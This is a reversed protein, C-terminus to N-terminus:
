MLKPMICYNLGDRAKPNRKFYYLPLQSKNDFPFSMKWCEVNCCHTNKLSKMGGRRFNLVIQPFMQSGQSPTGGPAGMGAAALLAGWPSPVHCFTGVLWSPIDAGRVTTCGGPSLSRTGGSYFHDTTGRHQCPSLDQWYRRPQTHHGTGM